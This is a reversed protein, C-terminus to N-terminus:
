LYLSGDEKQFVLDEERLKFVGYFQDENIHAMSQVLNYAAAATEVPQAYMTANAAIIMSRESENKDLWDRLSKQYECFHAYDRFRKGLVRDMARFVSPVYQGGVIAYGCFEAQGSVNLTIELAVHEMVEQKRCEDIALNAQYKFGDDGKVAFACPGNGRLLFNAIVAAVFTNLLLTGPEGSTKSDVVSARIYDSQIVYSERNAYYHAIFEESVGLYRLLYKEIAQTFRNQSADFMKFDSVGCKACTPCSRMAENLAERMQSDTMRNEYIVHNKLHKKFRYNIVRMCAGFLVQLDKNWASIGQGVKTPDPQKGEKAPKFIEKLHFRILNIDFNDHGVFQSDYNKGTASKIYENYIEQNEMPDLPQLETMHEQVFEEVMKRALLDSDHSFQLSAKKGVYRERLVGMTQSPLKPSFHLGNGATISYYKNVFSKVHGRMNRPCVWDKDLVGNSFGPRVVSSIAHNISTVTDLLAFKAVLTDALLYSDYPAQLIPEKVKAEVVESKKGITEIPTPFYHRTQDLYEQSGREKAVEAQVYETLPVKYNVCDARIAVMQARVEVACTRSEISKIVEAHVALYKEFIQSFSVSMSKTGKVGFFYVERGLVNSHSRVLDVSVWSLGRLVTFVHSDYRPIKIVLLDNVHAVKYSLMIERIILSRADALDDSGGDAIYVAQDAGVFKKLTEEADYSFVSGVHKEGVFPGVKGPELSMAFLREAPCTAQLVSAAKYPAECLHVRPWDSRFSFDSQEIFPLFKVSAGNPAGCWSAVKTTKTIKYARALWEDGALWHSEIESDLSALRLELEDDDVVVPTLDPLVIDDEDQAAPAAPPSADDDDSDDDDSLRSPMDDDSDEEDATQVEDDNGEEEEEVDSLDADSVTTDTLGTADIVIPEAVAQGYDEGYIVFDEELIEFVQFAEAGWEELPVSYGAMRTVRSLMEETNIYEPKHVQLDSYVEETFIAMRDNLMAYVDPEAIPDRGQLPYVGIPLKPLVPRNNVTMIQGVPVELDVKEVSFGAAEEVKEVEIPREPEQVETHPDEEEVAEPTVLGDSLFAEVAADNISLKPQKAVHVPLHSRYTAEIGVLDLMAVFEKANDSDDVLIYLKETHRSIAVRVLEMVKHQRTDHRSVILVSVPMSRGQKSRVTSHVIEYHACTADSFAYKEYAKEKVEDLDTIVFMSPVEKQSASEMNYGFSRNLLAVTDAPNRYNVLLTHRALSDIDLHNGAYWGETPESIKTQKIDGVLYVDTAKNIYAAIIPYRYDMATFEDVFIRRAGREGLGKHTTKVRYRPQGPILYDKKLDLFPIYILDCERAMARIMYSKGCGPGAEIYHVNASYSFGVVPINAKALEFAKKLEPATEKQIAEALQSHMMGLEETTMCLERLYGSPVCEIKQSGMKGSVENCVPCDDCDDEKAFIVSLDVTIPEDHHHTKVIQKIMAPASLVLKDTLNEAFIWRYVEVLPWVWFHLPYTITKIIAMLRRQTGTIDLNEVVGALKDQMLRAYVWVVAVVSHFDTPDLEWAATLTVGALSAGGSTRRVYTMATGITQSADALSVLYNYLAVFESENISIYELKSKLKGTALDASRFLNLVRVYKQEKPLSIARVIRENKNTKTITYTAMPGVRNTIEVVLDFFRGHIVPSRLLTSWASYKHSYSNSYGNKYYFNVHEGVRELIYYPNDPLEDFLLELPLLAYGVADLAGTREFIDIYDKAELEYCADEIVLRMAPVPELYYRIPMDDELQELCDLASRLSLYRKLVRVPSKGVPHLRREQKAAKRRLTGAVKTLASVLIRSVDKSESGYFWYSIAPNNQYETVERMAAGIVLVSTSSEAIKYTRRYITRLVERCAQLIMHDSATPGDPSPMFRLPLKVYSALERQAAATLNTSVKIASVMEARIQETAEPLVIAPGNISIANAIAQTAM